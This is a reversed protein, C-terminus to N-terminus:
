SAGEHILHLADIYPKLEAENKLVIHQIRPSPREVRDFGLKKLTYFLLAQRCCFEVQGDQMGYDLEVVRQHAPSLAPNPALVLTLINHWEHDDAPDVSSPSINHIAMLRAIVFDRFEQRMHCYARVHWRFGDHGLAHPSLLRETPEPRTMSQYAVQLAQRKRIATLLTVLTANDLTRGPTPVTAFAPRWGVFSEEPAVLGEASALLELLYRSPSSTPYYAVFGPPAVYTRSSKDYVLNNPALATYRAIDLSAQPTSISFFAMLDARNLSGEWQLRFDIFELRRDQGWRAGRVPTDEAM